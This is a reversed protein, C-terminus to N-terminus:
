WKSIRLCGLCDYETTESVAPGAKGKPAVAPERREHLAQKAHGVSEIGVKRDGETGNAGCSTKSQDSAASEFNTKRPVKCDAANLRIIKGGPQWVFDISGLVIKAQAGSRREPDPLEYFSDGTSSRRTHPEISPRCPGTPDDCIREGIKSRNQSAEPRDRYAAM